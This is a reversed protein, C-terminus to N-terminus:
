EMRAAVTCRLACGSGGGGGEGGGGEGGGGEGGHAYLSSWYARAEPMLLDLYASPGPWCKGVFTANAADRVLWGHAKATAFLAYEDDAKLHPDAIAVLRRGKPRLQADLASPDPFAREDWTFYRKGDTHEIDMWAADLPVGHRDFNRDLAAVQGQSKLNWHSQHYGISWLPPMPPRGTTLALQRLVAKASPGGFLLLEIAGGESLWATGLGRGSGGAGSGGAGSGGAGSGGAGSSRRRRRRRRRRRGRRRAGCSGTGCTSTLDAANLWLVGAASTVGHAMVYPLAGYLAGSRRARVQLCGPQSRYPERPRGYEDALPNFRLPTVDSASGSAADVRAGFAPEVTPQLVLPAAREPLGFAELARPFTVDAAVVTCGDPQTDAAGYADGPACTASLEASASADSGALAAARRQLCHVARAIAAARGGAGGHGVFLRLRFPAERIEVESWWQGDGGARVAQTGPPQLAADLLRQPARRPQLCCSGRSPSVNSAHHQLLQFRWSPASTDDAAARLLLTITSNARGLITPLLSKMLSSRFTSWMASRRHPALWRYARCFNSQMCSTRFKDADFAITLTPLSLLMLLDAGRRSRTVTTARRSGGRPM